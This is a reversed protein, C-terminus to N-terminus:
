LAGKISDIQGKLTTFTPIANILPQMGIATPTRADILAQLLSSILDLIEVGNAGLAIKDDAQFKLKATKFKLEVDNPNIDMSNAKNYLGPIAIADTINFQRLTRPTVEEGTGNLWEDLSRMCFVLLVTDGKQIPFSLIGGGASPFVVPVDLIMPTELVVGDRYIKRVLPKVDVTQDSGVNSVEKVEAPLATYLNDRLFDEVSKLIVDKLSVTGTM